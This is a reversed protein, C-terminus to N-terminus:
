RSRRRPPNTEEPLKQISEHEKIRQVEGTKPNTVEIEREREIKPAMLWFVIFVGLGILLAFFVQPIDNIAVKAEDSFHAELNGSTGRKNRFVVLLLVFVGIGVFAGFVKFGVNWAIGTSDM